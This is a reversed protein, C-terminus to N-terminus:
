FFFKLALQIVRPTNTSTIEGFTPSIVTSNPTGLNTHNFFNFFEGRLQFQYREGWSFNKFLGFDLDWYGPGRMTNIGVLGPSGVANVTFASTNFWKKIRQGETGSTYTIPVGSVPDATDLNVLYGSNDVGSRVTFPSGTQAQLIGSAEWGGLLTRMPLSQQRLGPLNWVASTSLVHTMDFNVPSYDLHTDFPDRADGGLNASSQEYGFGLNKSLTYASSLTLSRYMPRKVLLQLSNYNSYGTTQMDSIASFQPFPRVNEIGANLDDGQFFLKESRSGVYAGSVTFRSPLQREITLNWQQTYPTVMNQRSSTVGAPVVFHFNSREAPTTPPSFPFPSHGDYPDDLSVPAFNPYTTGILTEALVFPQNTPFLNLGIGQISDYFIGYGGRVATKGDGFVDWAFGIRPAFNNWDHKFFNPNVTPDGQFVLGLPATPYVVSQEGPRFATSQNDLDDFGLYPDYRLGLTLTLRPTAKIRDQGFFGWLTQRYNDTGPSEQVLETADGLLFDASGDGTFDGTFEWLGDSWFEFRQYLQYRSIQAGWKITSRGKVLTTTNNYNFTNSRVDWPLGNQAGYYGTVGLALWGVQDPYTLPVNAGLTQWNFPPNPYEEQKVRDYSATFENLFTPSFIHTENVTVSQRQFTSDLFWNTFSGDNSATPNNTFTYHGFIHDKSSIEHDIRGIFENLDNTSPSPASFFNGPEVNPLPVYKATFAVAPQSFLASPIQNDPFPVGTAPNKLQKSLASYDGSREAVSPVGFVSVSPSGDQRLTEWAGFFFTKDKRIPGGFTAGFQNQKYPPVASGPIAQGTAPNTQNYAFFNRADFSNNRVFEYADGHFANTGSKVIANVVAGRNRGYEADYSSTLVTFEQIADPDPFTNPSNYFPDTFEGGDLTYNNTWGVGGNVAYTPTNGAQDGSGVGISGNVLQQLQLVNRGNLVLNMMQANTVVEKVAGSIVDVQPPASRVTIEQSLAGIQLKASATLNQNVQLAMGTRLYRKFGAAEVELRYVGAPLALFDYFGEANTETSRSLGTREETLNVTARPIVGGKPDVVTGSITGTDRQALLSVSFLISLFLALAIKDIAVRSIISPGGRTLRPNLERRVLRV